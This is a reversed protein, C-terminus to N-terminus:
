AFLSQAPEDLSTGFNRRLILFDSLNVTGDYNFDATSFTGGTQGFNRRLVLFDSLNVVRDRNADGALVFFDLTIPTGSAPVGASNAIDSAQVVLEYNGNPLDGTLDLVAENSFSNFTLVGASQPLTEGTDVDTITYDSRSLFASVDQDFTFTVALRTEFEFSQGLIQPAPPLPGPVIEVALTNADPRSVGLVDGSPDEGGQFSDFANTIAGTATIIDFRDGV